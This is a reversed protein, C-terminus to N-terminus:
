QGSTEKLPRPSILDVGAPAPPLLKLKERKLTVTRSGAAGPRLFVLTVDTGERGWLEERSIEEFNSGALDRSGVRILLDGPDLGSLAAPSDPVVQLVVLHGTAVPVVQLGIGTRTEAAPALVPLVVWACVALLLVAM